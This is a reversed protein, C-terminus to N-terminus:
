DVQQIDTNSTLDIPNSSMHAKGKFTSNSSRTVKDIPSPKNSSGVLVALSGVSGGTSSGMNQFKRKSSSLKLSSHKHKRKLHKAM